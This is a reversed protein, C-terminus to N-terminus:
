TVVWNTQILIKVTTDSDDYKPHFCIDSLQDDVDIWM